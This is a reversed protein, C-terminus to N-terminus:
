LIKYPDTFLVYWLLSEKRQYLYFLRMIRRRKCVPLFVRRKYPLTKESFNELENYWLSNASKPLPPNAGWAEVDQKPEEPRPETRDAGDM